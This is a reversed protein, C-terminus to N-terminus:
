IVCDPAPAAAGVCKEEKSKKPGITNGWLPHSGWPTEVL